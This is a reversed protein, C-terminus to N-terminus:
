LLFFILIVLSNEENALDKFSKLFAIFVLFSGFMVMSFGLFRYSFILLKIKLINITLHRLRIEHLIKIYHRQTQKRVLHWSLSSYNMFPMEMYTKNLTNM